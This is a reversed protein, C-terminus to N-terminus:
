KGQEIDNLDIGYISRIWGKITFDYGGILGNWSVVHKFVENKSMNAIEMDLSTDNPELDLHERVAEIIHQPYMDELQKTADMTIMRKVAIKSHM